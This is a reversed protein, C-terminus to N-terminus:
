APEGILVPASPAWGLERRARASSFAAPTALLDAMPGIRGRLEDLTLSVTRGGLGMRVSMYEALQKVRVFHDSAAIYVTGSEASQLARLYLNSLDDVHVTSWEAEGDEPYPVADGGQAAYALLGLVAAEGDGHVISPRIVVTRMGNAAAALVIAEAQARWGVPGDIVLPAEEDTDRASSAGVVGVGSTWILTKGTNALAATLAGALGIEASAPDDAAFALNIVADADHAAEIVSEPDRIDARIAATGREKLGAMGEDTWATCVVDYGAAVLDRQVRTGIFGTGGIVLVKTM